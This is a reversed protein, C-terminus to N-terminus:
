GIAPQNWLGHWNTPFFNLYLVGQENRRTVLIDLIAKWGISGTTLRLKYLYSVGRLSCGCQADLFLVNWTRIRIM